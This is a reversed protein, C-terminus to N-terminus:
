IFKSDKGALANKMMAILNVITALNPEANVPTYTPMPNVWWNKLDGNKTKVWRHKM